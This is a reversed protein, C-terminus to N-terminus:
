CQPGTTHVSVPGVTPYRQPLSGADLHRPHVQDNERDPDGTNEERGTSATKVANTRHALDNTATKNQDRLHERYKGKENTPGFSELALQRPTELFFM